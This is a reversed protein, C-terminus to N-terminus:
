KYLKHNKIYEYVGNPILESVDKGNALAARIDTSSMELADVTLKRVKAHYKEEYLAIKKEIETSIEGDDERRVYVLICKDMIEEFCYWQDFTLIMDTGCLLFLEIGEAYLERVTMVTYSKGSRKLEMDSIETKPLSSFAIQCMELRKSPDDDAGIAKHPPIGAPIIILKDLECENLFAKAARVHANHVPSFTGGYIGLRM